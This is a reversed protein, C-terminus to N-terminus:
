MMAYYQHFTATILMSLKIQYNSDKLNSLDQSNSIFGCEILLAPCSANKTIFLNKPAPQAVRRNLPDIASIINKQMMVALNKSKDNDAHLIQVGSPVSNQFTNQHISLLVANPERNAIGVRYELDKRESYDDSSTRPTDDIRTMLTRIGLLESIAKIKESIELNLDSEKTGDPAIAGGDFGGHGPDIVLTINENIVSASKVVSHYSYAHTVTIMIFAAALCTLYFAKSKGFGVTFHM